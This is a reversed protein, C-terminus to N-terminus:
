TSPGYAYDPEDDSYARALGAKSRAIWDAREGDPVDDLVTVMLRADTSLKFPEDLHIHKGDFHAPLTLAKM